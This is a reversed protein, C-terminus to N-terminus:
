GIISEIHKNVYMSDNNLKITEKEKPKTSPDWKEVIRKNDMIYIYDANKKLLSIDHSIVIISTNKNKLDFLVNMIDQKISVDLSSVPEDAIILKPKSSVIKALGFRRRQGGSLDEPTSNQKLQDDIRYAKAISTIEKEIDTHDDINLEISEKLQEKLLMKMNLSTRPDQFVMQIPPPKINTYEVSQTNIMTGNDHFTIKGTMKYDIDKKYGSLEYYNVIAKALTTKGCGSIGAIGIISGSNIEININNFINVWEENTNYNKTNKFYFNLDEIKLIM